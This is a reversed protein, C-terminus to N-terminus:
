RSVSVSTNTDYKAASQELLPSDTIQTSFVDPITTQGEQLYLQQNLLHTEEMKPVM